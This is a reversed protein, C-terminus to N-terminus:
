IVQLYSFDYAREVRDKTKGGHGLLGQYLLQGLCELRILSTRALQKHVDESRFFFCTAVDRRTM